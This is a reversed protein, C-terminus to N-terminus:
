KIALLFRCLRGNIHKKSWEEFYEPIQMMSIVGFKEKIILASVESLTNVGFKKFLTERKKNAVEPAQNALLGNYKKRQTANRQEVFGPLMFNHEVGYKEIMTNKRAKNQREKIIEVYNEGYKTERTQNSKEKVHKDKTSCSNSCHGRYRNGLFKLPTIKCTPCMPREYIDNLLWYKQEALSIFEGPVFENLKLLLYKQLNGHYFKLPSDNNVFMQFFMKLENRSSIFM